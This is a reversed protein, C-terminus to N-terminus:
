LSLVALVTKSTPSGGAGPDLQSSVVGFGKTTVDSGTVMGSGIMRTFLPPQLSPLACFHKANPGAAGFARGPHFAGWGRGLIM